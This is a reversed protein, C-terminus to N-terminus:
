VYEFGHEFTCFCFPPLLSFFWPKVPLLAAFLDSGKTITTVLCVRTECRYGFKQSIITNVKVTDWDSDCIESNKPKALEKVEEETPLEKGDICFNGDQYKLNLFM